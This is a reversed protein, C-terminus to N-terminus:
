FSLFFFFFFPPLLFNAGRLEGRATAVNAIHRPAGGRAPPKWDGEGCGLLLSASAAWPGSGAPAMWPIGARPERPSARFGGTKWDRPLQLGKAYRGKRTVKGMSGHRKEGRASSAKPLFHWSPWQLLQLRPPSPSPLAFLPIAGEGWCPDPHQSGQEQREPARVGAGGAGLVKPQM